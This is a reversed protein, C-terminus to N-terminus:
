KKVGCKHGTKAAANIPEGCNRCLIIETKCPECFAPGFCSLKLEEDCYPCKCKTNKAVSKEHNTKM